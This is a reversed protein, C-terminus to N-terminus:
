LDCYNVRTRFSILPDDTTGAVTSFYALFIGNTQLDTVDSGANADEWKQVSDLKQTIKFPLISYQSTDMVFTHDFYVVINDTNNVERFSNVDNATELVQDISPMALDVHRVRFMMLRVICDVSTGHTNRIYGRVKIKKLHVKSGVRASSGSNQAIPTIFEIGAVTNVDDDEIATIDKYKYEIGKQIDKIMKFNKKPLSSYKKKYNRKKKYFKKKAM